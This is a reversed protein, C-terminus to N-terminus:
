TRDGTREDHLWPIGGGRVAFACKKPNLRMNAGEMITFVQEMDQVHDAEKKKSKILIDDVYAEMIKGLVEKFLIGIMRQFTAMANRLGFPMVVYCYVGDSIVFATKEADDPHMFVQHYGRFADMFSLLECGATEDVLLDIRPVPYPDMPCAKNLDSYEVCMRWTTGKPALVVNSLWEVHMVTRIHRIDLLTTVEVKVFDRREVAMYRKKQQVPRADPWVALKHCIIEPDIGPMDEPGRAFLIKFRQLILIVGERIEPELGTGISVKRDSPDDVEVEELLTAPEPRSMAEEQQATEAISNVRMDRETMKKVAEKYCARATDPDTCAVGVGTETPFKICSHRVSCIAELDELGPRGLIANHACKLRMVVFTMPITARHERDGIEVPLVITGEADISHGTFGTLPTRLPSLDARSLHMKEFVDWYLVNVSSGTDVLVRRIIWERIDMSFVLEDRHPGLSQPLDAIGFTIPEAKHKKTPPASISNIRLAREFKKREVPTDGTEAGGFIMKIEM